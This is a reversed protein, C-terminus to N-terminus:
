LTTLRAYPVIGVLHAFCESAVRVLDVAIQILELMCFYGRQPHTHTHTHAHAFNVFCGGQWPQTILTSHKALGSDVPRLEALDSFAIYLRVGHCVSGRRALKTM